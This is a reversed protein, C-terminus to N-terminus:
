ARRTQRRRAETKFATRDLPLAFGNGVKRSRREIENRLEEGNNQLHEYALMADVLLEDESRYDGTEMWHRVMRDLNPPFSYGM